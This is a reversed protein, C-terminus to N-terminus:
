IGWGDTGLMIFGGGGRGGGLKKGGLPRGEQHGCAARRRAAPPTVSVSPDGAIFV